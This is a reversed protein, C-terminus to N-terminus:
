PPPSATRSDPPPIGELEERLRSLDASAPWAHCTACDTRVNKVQHCSICTAMSSVSTLESMAPQDPVRGHCTTCPVSAALHPEHSFKVGQLVTYIRIWPIVEGSDAYQKLQKIAPRDKAVEAHCTMCTSAPPLTMDAGLRPNVHCSTCEVGFGVHTQHNFPVPQEPAAHAALNGLITPADPQVRQKKSRTWAARVQSVYELTVASPKAGFNSTIYNAVSAIDDNSLAQGFSPMMNRYDQDGFFIVQVVNAATPDNVARSGTLTAFPSLSSVGNAGHCAACANDFVAKGRPEAGAQGIDGSPVSPPTSRPQPLSSNANAPVSRLYTVIAAIDGSTLHSIGAGIAEGMPGTATGHGDAHGTSLYSKLDADTWGGIGGDHDSTINYARWGDVVTGVFKERNDLAQLFNRPTHCEACHGLGEVLYAGRNWEFSRDINPEFRTNPSFLISWAAMLYRQNFPFKLDDQPAPARVPALSFLFAKIALADDDSMYTYSAYPMAPYLRAGDLRIGDHVANLFNRDTYNGIGTNKDPTINTSFLSGFPTIFQRGGAYPLGGPATHCAVCDAARALYEGRQLLSAGKLELPVGTPDHNLYESLKVRRGSAFAFADPQTFLWLGLTVVMSLAVVAVVALKKKM